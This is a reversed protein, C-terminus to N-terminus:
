QGPQLVEGPPQSHKDDDEAEGPQPPLVRARACIEKPPKPSDGDNERQCPTARGDNTLEVRDALLDGPASASAVIANQVPEVVIVTHAKFFAVASEGFSM